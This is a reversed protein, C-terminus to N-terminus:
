AQAVARDELLEGLMWAITEHYEVLGGLLGATAADSYQQACLEADAKLREAMQDHLGILEAIMCAANLDAGRAPAIRPTQILDSWGTRAAVGLVRAREGIKEIWRDLERYQEDFVAELSRFQPGSVHWRYDRAASSLAFEDALAHNLIDGVM